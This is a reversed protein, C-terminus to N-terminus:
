PRALVAARGARRVGVALAVVVIADASPAPRRSRRADGVVVLPFVLYFQEEIALSWFHQVPSPASFLAAYSQDGFVFRWNAVEALASLGDGPLRSAQQADAVTLGYLAVGALALLAAPLIRRARRAWFHGLGIRGTSEHEVLLLSTILFGSLTFFISVGLFGGGLGTSRRRPVAPGRGRGAGRLGDLAPARASDGTKRGGCRPLSPM